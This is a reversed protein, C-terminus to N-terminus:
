KIFTDLIISKNHARGSVNDIMNWTSKCDSSLEHFKNEYYNKKALRCLSMYMINYERYKILNEPSACKLKKKYLKEKVKRSKLLGFSMWPNLPINKSHLRSIKKPFSDSFCQELIQFFSSFASETNLDEMLPEWQVSELSTKFKIKNKQSMYYELNPTCSKSQKEKENRYVIYFTAFHDSLDNTIVGSDYLSDNINTSIHDILSASRYSIRTPLTILPLLENSLLLDLYDNTDSHIAYSILNIDTDGLLILECKSLLNDNRYKALIEALISNFRKICALPGTNPRYINGVVKFKNRSTQIQIFQSEFVHPIFVSLEPIIKYKLDDAM